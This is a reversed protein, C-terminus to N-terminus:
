AARDRDELPRAGNTVMPKLNCLIAPKFQVGPRSGAGPLRNGPGVERQTEGRSTSAGTYPRCRVDTGSCGSASVASRIDHM